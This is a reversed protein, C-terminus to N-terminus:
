DGGFGQPPNAPSAGCGSRCRPAPSTRGHAASRFGRPCARRDAGRPPPPLHRPRTRGPDEAQPTSAPPPTPQPSEAPDPLVAPCAAGRARVLRGEAHPARPSPGSGSPAGAAGRRPRCTALSRPLGPADKSLHNGNEASGCAPGTHDSPSGGTTAPSAPVRADGSPLHAGFGSNEATSPPVCVGPGLARPGACRVPGERGGGQTVGAARLCCRPGAARFRTAPHFRLGPGAPLTM